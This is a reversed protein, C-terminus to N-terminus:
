VKLVSLYGANCYDIIKLDGTVLIANHYHATAIIIRDAPDLHPYNPLNCSTVAIEPTLAALNLKPVEVLADDIWKEIPRDLEVRGKKVLMAFEWVSIASVLWDAETLKHQVNHTIRPNSEAIWIWACTDLVFKKLSKSGM